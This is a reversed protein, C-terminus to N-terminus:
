TPSGAGKSPITPTQARSITTMRSSGTESISRTYFSLTKKRCLLTDIMEQRFRSGVICYLVSNISHNLTATAHLVGNVVPHPYHTISYVVAEPGTLIIFMISVTVLTAAVGRMSSKSLAQSTSDTENHTSSLKAKAFKFVIASNTVGMIAFPVFSYLLSDFRNYTLVYSQSVRIFNCRDRGGKRNKEIIFFFQANFAALSLATLFTAWKATRVTCIGKTKLPFYLAFCKEISMIVLM